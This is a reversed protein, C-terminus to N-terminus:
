SGSKSQCTNLESSKEVSLCYITAMHGVRGWTTWRILATSLSVRSRTTSGSVCSDRRLRRRVAVSSIATGPESRCLEEGGGAAEGDEAGDWGLLFCSFPETDLCGMAALLWTWFGVLLDSELAAFFTLLDFLHTSILWNSLSLLDLWMM